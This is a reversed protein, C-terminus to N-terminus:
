VFIMDSKVKEIFSSHAPVGVWSVETCVPRNNIEGTLCWLAPEGFFLFLKPIFKAFSTYSKYM